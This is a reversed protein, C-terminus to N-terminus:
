RGQLWSRDVGPPLFLVNNNMFRKGWLALNAHIESRFDSFPMHKGEFTFWGEYDLDTLFRFEKPLPHEYLQLAVETMIIPRDRLITEIAGELVAREHQEVDIKIFGISDLPEDDLRATPVEHGEVREYNRFSQCVSGLEHIPRGDKVPVQLVLTGSRNSVAVQRVVVDPFLAQLRKALGPNPEYAYVRSSYRRMFYTYIGINAGIDVSAKGARCMHRILRLEPEGNLFHDAAQLHLLIKPPIVKSAVKKIM